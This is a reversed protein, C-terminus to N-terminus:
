GTESKAPYARSNGSKDDPEYEVGHSPLCLRLIQSTNWATSLLCLRLMPCINGATCLLAYVYLLAPLRMMSVM